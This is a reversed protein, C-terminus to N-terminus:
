VKYSIVVHILSERLHEIKTHNSLYITPVITAKDGDQVGQFTIETATKATISAPAISVSPALNMHKADALFRVDIWLRFGESIDSGLRFVMMRLHIEELFRVNAVEM